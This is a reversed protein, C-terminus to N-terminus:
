ELDSVYKRYMDLSEVFCTEQASTLASRWADESGGHMETLEEWSEVASALGEKGPHLCVLNWSRAKITWAWGDGRDGSGRKQYREGRIFIKGMMNADMPHRIFEVMGERVMFHRVQLCSGKLLVPRCDMEVEYIEGKEDAM